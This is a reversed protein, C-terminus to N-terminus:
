LGLTIHKWVKKNKILGILERRVGYKVGIEKHLGSAHYIEVVQAETLKAATNASGPAGRGAERNNEDATKCEVNWWVYPGKDGRRAMVYQGKRCGRRNFWNPGLHLQWWRVWEEYTFCWEIGRRKSTSVQCLYASYVKDKRPM